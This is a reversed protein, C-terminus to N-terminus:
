FLGAFGSVPNGAKKQRVIADSGRSPCSQAQHFDDHGVKIAGGTSSIYKGEYSVKL